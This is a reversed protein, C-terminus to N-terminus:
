NNYAIQTVVLITVKFSSSITKSPSQVLSAHEKVDSSNAPAETDGCQKM